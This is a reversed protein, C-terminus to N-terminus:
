YDWDKENIKAGQNILWPVLRDKFCTPCLDILYETGSGGEPYVDGSRQKVTVSLDTEDVRYCGSEWTGHDAKTGCLDCRLEDLVEEEVKRTKKVYTRM